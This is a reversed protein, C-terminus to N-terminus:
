AEQQAAADEPTAGVGRAANQLAAKYANIISRSSRTAGSVTQIDSVQAGADIKEQIQKVVSRMRYGIGGYKGDIAWNLYLANQSSSYVCQPDVVGVEDAYVDSIAVVKGGSVDIKVFLYYPDWEDFGTGSKSCYAYGYYSGDELAGVPDIEGTDGNTDDEPEEAGQGGSGDGAALDPEDITSGAATASKSLAAYFAAFISKSSFTAGSVTDISAPLKGAAIADELQKVVGAIAGDLYRKNEDADWNLKTAGDEGTSSGFVRDISAAAGNAVTVTVGIYYPKWGDDPDPGCQAYATWTGDALAGIEVDTKVREKKPKKAVVDAAKKATGSSGGAASAQNLADIYANYIAVSSYTAKSVTDVNSVSGNAAMANIQSKVGTEGGRGDEAWTLYSQNEAADWSLAASGSAGTSSGFVSTIGQSKGGSVEVTVGVYYPKWGDSNGQGCAAYGTWTGDALDASSVGSASAQAEVAEDGKNEAELAEADITSLEAANATQPQYLAPDFVLPTHGAVATGVAAAVAVSPLVLWFASQKLWNIVRM